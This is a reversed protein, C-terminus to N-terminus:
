IVGSGNERDWCINPTCKVNDRGFIDGGGNAFSDSQFENIRLVM